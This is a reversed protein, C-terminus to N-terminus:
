DANIYYGKSQYVNDLKKLLNDCLHDVEPSLQSDLGRGVSSIRINKLINDGPFDRGIFEYIRQTVELPRKVLNDYKFIM